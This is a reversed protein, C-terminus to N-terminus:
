RNWVRAMAARMEQRREESIALLIEPLKEVDAQAIRVTFASLDVVSDFSVMVDDQPPLPTGRRLRANGTCDPWPLQQTCGTLM